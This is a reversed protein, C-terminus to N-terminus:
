GHNGQRAKGAAVKNTPATGETQGSEEETSQTKQFPHKSTNCRFAHRFGAAISHRRNEPRCTASEYQIHPRALADSRDSCSCLSNDRCGSSSRSSSPRARAVERPPAPVHLECTSADRLRRCKCH